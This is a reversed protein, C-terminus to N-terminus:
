VPSNAKREGRAKIAADAERTLRAIWDATSEPESGLGGPRGLSITPLADAVWDPLRYEDLDAEPSNLYVVPTKIRGSRRLEQRLRAARSDFSV